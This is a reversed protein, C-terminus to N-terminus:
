GFRQGPGALAAFSLGVAQNLAEGDLRASLMKREGGSVVCCVVSAADTYTKKNNV